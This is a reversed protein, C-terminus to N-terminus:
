REYNFTKYFINKILNNSRQHNKVLIFMLSLAMLWVMSPEPVDTVAYGDSYVQGFIEYRTNGAVEFILSEDLSESSSMSGGIFAEASSFFIDDVSDFLSIEGYAGGDDGSFLPTDNFIDASIFSSLLLEFTLPNQHNNQFVISFDTEAFSSAEGKSSSSGYSGSYQYDPPNSDNATLNGFTFLNTDVNATGAGSTSTNSNFLSGSLTVSYQDPNPGQGTGSGPGQGNGQGTGPGNGQGGVHAVNVLSFEIDAYGDYFLGAHAGLSFISTAVMFVLSIILSHPYKRLITM